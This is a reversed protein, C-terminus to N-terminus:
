LVINCTFQQKPTVDFTTKSVWLRTGYKQIHFHAFVSCMNLAVYTFSVIQHLSCVGGMARM